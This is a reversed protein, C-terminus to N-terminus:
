YVKNLIQEQYKELTTLPRLNYDRPERFNPNFMRAYREIINADEYSSVPNGRVTSIGSGKVPKIAM